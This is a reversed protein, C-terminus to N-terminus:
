SAEGQHCTCTPCHSQKRIAERIFAPTKNMIFQPRRPPYKADLWVACPAGVVIFVIVGLAALLTM